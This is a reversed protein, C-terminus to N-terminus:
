GERDRKRGEGGDGKRMHREGKFAKERYRKEREGKKGIKAERREVGGEEMTEERLEEKGVPETKM